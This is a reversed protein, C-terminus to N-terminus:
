IPGVVVVNFRRMCPCKLLPAIWSCKVSICSLFGVTASSTLLVATIWLSGVLLLSLIASATLMSSWLGVRLMWVLNSRTSGEFLRRNGGRCVATPPTPPSPSLALLPSPSPRVCDPCVGCCAGCSVTGVPVVTSSPIVRVSGETFLLLPSARLGSRLRGM